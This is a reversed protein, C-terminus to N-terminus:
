DRGDILWCLSKTLADGSMPELRDSAGDRVYIHARTGEGNAVTAAVEREGLRWSLTLGGNGLAGCTPPQLSPPLRDRCDSLTDWAVRVAERSPALFDDDYEDPLQVTELIARYAAQM